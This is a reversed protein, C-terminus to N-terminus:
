EVLRLAPRLPRVPREDLGHRAMAADIAQANRRAIGDLKTAPRSRAAFKAANRMWNRWSARWDARAEGKAIWFDRFRDTEDSINEVIPFSARAWDILADDPMWDESMRTARKRKELNGSPEQHNMSPEPRVTRRTTDSQAVPITAPQSVEPRETRCGEKVALRYWNSQGPRQERVVLRALELADIARFVSARHMGTVKAIRDVGPWCQGTRDAHDALALLVLKALPQVHQAFAWAIAHVAM